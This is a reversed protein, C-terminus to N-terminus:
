PLLVPLLKHWRAPIHFKVHVAPLRQVHLKRFPELSPETLSRTPFEELVLEVKYLGEGLFLEPAPVFVIVQVM